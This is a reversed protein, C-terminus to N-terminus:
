WWWGGAGGEGGGGGVCVCVVWPRWGSSIPANVSSTSRPCSSVTSVGLKTHKRGILMAGGGGGGVKGGGM